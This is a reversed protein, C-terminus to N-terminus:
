VHCTDCYLLGTVLQPQETVMVDQIIPTCAFPRTCNLVRGKYDKDFGGFSSQRYRIKDAAAEAFASEVRLVVM